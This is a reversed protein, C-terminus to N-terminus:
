FVVAIPPLDAFLPYAARPARPARRARRAARRPYKRADRAHINARMARKYNRAFIQTRADRAVIQACQARRINRAVRALMKRANRAPIKSRADRAVQINRHL